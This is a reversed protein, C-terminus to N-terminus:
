FWTQTDLPDGRTILVGFLRTKDGLGDLVSRLACTSKKLVIPAVKLKPPPPLDKNSSSATTMKTQLYM